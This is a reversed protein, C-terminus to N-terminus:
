AVVCSGKEQVRTLTHLEREAILCSMGAAQLVKPCFDQMNRIAHLKRCHCCAIHGPMDRELLQLFRYRGLLGECAGEGDQFDNLSPDVVM